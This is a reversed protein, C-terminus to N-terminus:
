HLNPCNLISRQDEQQSSWCQQGCSEPVEEVGDRGRDHLDHHPYGQGRPGGRVGGHQGQLAM